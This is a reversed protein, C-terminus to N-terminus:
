RAGAARSGREGDEDGRGRGHERERDRHAFFDEMREPELESESFPVGMTGQELWVFQGESV